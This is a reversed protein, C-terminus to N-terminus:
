SALKQAPAERPGATRAAAGSAEVSVESREKALEVQDATGGLEQWREAIQASFGDLFDDSHLPDHHFLLV